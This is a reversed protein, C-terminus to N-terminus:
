RVVAILTNEKGFDKVLQFFIKANDPLLRVCGHSAPKGLRRIDTTGHIAYGDHFFVSWPMPANHYKKSRHFPTIWEPAYRGVPTIYGGRATSVKFVHVLLDDVYVSMTQDSIDIRAVIKPGPPEVEAPIIEEGTDPVILAAQQVMPATPEAHAMAAFALLATAALGVRAQRVQSPRWGEGM